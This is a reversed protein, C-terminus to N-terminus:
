IGQICVSVRFKGRSSKKTKLSSHTSSCKPHPGLPNGNTIYPTLRCYFDECKKLNKCDGCKELDSIKVGGRFFLWKESFWSDSIRENRINGMSWKPDSLAMNCPYISGESDISLRNKGAQCSVYGRKAEQISEELNGCHLFVDLAVDIKRRYRIKAVTLGYMVKRYEDYSPLWEANNKMRGSPKLDLFAIRYAGCDVALKIIERYRDLNRRNLCCNIGYQVRTKRLLRLAEVTRKFSGKVGRFLDHEEAESDDLSITPIVESTKLLNVKEEDLLTGNTLIVKRFRRGGLDRLIECIEPHLFPEGGNIRVEFVGLKEFQDFISKLEGVSLEHITEDERKSFCHVCNLNCRSTIFVDVSTPASLFPLPFKEYVSSVFRVRQPPKLGFSEADVQVYGSRVMRKLYDECDGYKMDAEKSIESLDASKDYICELVRYEEETLFETRVRRYDFAAYTNYYQPEFRLLVSSSLSYRRSL